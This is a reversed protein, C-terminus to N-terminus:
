QDAGVARAQDQAAHPQAQPFMARAKAEMRLEIDQMEELFLRTEAERLGTIQAQLAALEDLNRRQQVEIAAVLARVHELNPTEQILPPLVPEVAFYAPAPTTRIRGVTERYERINALGSVRWEKRSAALEVIRRETAALSERARDLKARDEAAIAKVKAEVVAYAASVALRYQERAQSARARAAALRRAVDAFGWYYDVPSSPGGRGKVVAGAFVGMGIFFLALSLLLSFTPDTLEPGDGMLRAEQRSRAIAVGINWLLGLGCLSWFVIRGARKRDQDVHAMWRLGILGAVLGLAINVASISGAMVVGALLGGAADQMFFCNAISELLLVVALMKWFKDQRPDYQAERNLRHRDKFIRSERLMAQATLEAEEVDERADLKVQGVEAQAKNLELQLHTPEIDNVLAASHASAIEYDGELELVQDGININDIVSQEFEGLDAAQTPPLNQGGDRRGRERVEGLTEMPPFADRMSGKLIPTTRIIRGPTVRGEAIRPAPEPEEVPRKAVRDWVQKSIFNLMM